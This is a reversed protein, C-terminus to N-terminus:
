STEQSRREALAAFAADTPAHAGCVTCDPDRQLRIEHFRLTRGDFALIRDALAPGEGALIRIAEHAQLAGLVSAVPGLIGAERCSPEEVEDGDPFACRLCASRRPLITLAQGGFGVVGAHCVPKGLLVAADSLLYKTAAGDTADVVVDALSFLAPITEPTAAFPHGTVIPRSPDAVLKRAASEVKARGVDGEAHLLQRHLNSVEVADPDALGITGVGARALTMAAACGLGGIGVVMVRADRLGNM